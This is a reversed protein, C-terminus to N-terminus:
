KHVVHKAAKSENRYVADLVRLRESTVDWFTPRDSLPLLALTQGCHVM